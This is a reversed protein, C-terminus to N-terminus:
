ESATCCGGDSGWIELFLDGGLLSLARCYLVGKTGIVASLGVTCWGVDSGGGRLFVVWGLIVSTGLFLDGESKVESTAPQGAAFCGGESGM